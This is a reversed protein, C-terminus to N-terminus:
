APKSDVVDIVFWLTEDSAITPPRGAAGYAQSPPIGLLREGGIKMGPIGTTWGQIVNALPFSATQGRSYSSDFIKGTSCAVGIYNVTVTAGAPVVAGTGVKLDRSVLSTPPPGVEVPM